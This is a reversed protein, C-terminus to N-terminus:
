SLELTRIEHSVKPSVFEIDVAAGARMQVYSGPSIPFGDSETVGSAGIYMTRNDSNYVFLYKRNSLPSAIIDEATSAVSLTTSGNAIATNALAADSVVWPDTGQYVEVSDSNYDLDRIDLDTASVVSNISGDASVALTDTGDSIAVNDQSASLDRIDLDTATVAISANILNVDLGIDAGVTTSTFFSTGDGLRVSDETHVLDVDIQIDSSAINVDLAGSTETIATGNGAHLAAAVNLWELSDIEQSNILEKNGSRVGQVVAGVQHSEARTDASTVDFVLHDIM